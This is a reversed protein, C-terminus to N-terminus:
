QARESATAKVIHDIVAGVTNLRECDEDAISIGFEDELAIILEVHDLSDAGLDDAFNKDRTISEKPVGLQNEIIGVIRDQINTKSEPM